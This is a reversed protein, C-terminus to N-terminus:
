NDKIDHKPQKSTPNTTIYINGINFSNKTLLTVLIKLLLSM